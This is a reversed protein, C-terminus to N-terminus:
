AFFQLTRALIEAQQRAREFDWYNTKFQFLKPQLEEAVPCINCAYKNLNESSIFQDRNLMSFNRMFPEQYTLRWCAYVGDGGFSRFKDRFVHWNVDDRQLLAAFTWFSHVAYNPAMQPTFWDAYPAVVEGFLAGVAKRREVLEDINETQALAVACCLEPMRYNWGLTDHRLYEPSQIEERTVKGSNASLGRYGLSSVRRLKDAFEDDDTIVIGGEGSTLHKSNQFSYSACDGLTGVVRGKYTGLFCEANDELVKLKHAQALRIIPDMDPSLGFLSVTIIAKTKETICSAISEASIQFTRKDVDAFVPTANCQLVAFSTSAMTLPPVIVEDGAGIGWAELAAHMTATGNVFAVGHKRGFKKAFAREFRQMMSAGKSARFESNLVETLYKMENGFIRKNIM